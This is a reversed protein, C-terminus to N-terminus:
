MKFLPSNCKNM